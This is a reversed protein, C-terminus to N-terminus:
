GPIIVFPFFCFIIMSNFIWAKERVEPYFRSKRFSVSAGSNGERKKRLLTFSHFLDSSSEFTQSRTMDVYTGCDSNERRELDLFHVNENSFCFRPGDSSPSEDRNAPISEPEVDREERVVKIMDATPSKARSIEKCEKEENIWNKMSKWAKNIRSRVRVITKKDKPTINLKKSNEQRHRCYDDVDVDAYEDTTETSEKAQPIEPLKENELEVDEYELTSNIKKERPTPPRLHLVESAAYFLESENESKEGSVSAEQDGVVYDGAQPHVESSVSQSNLSTRPSSYVNETGSSESVTAYGRDVTGKSEDPTDYIFEKANKIPKDKPNGDLFSFRISSLDGLDSAESNANQNKADSIQKSDETSAPSKKSKEPPSIRIELSSKKLESMKKEEPKQKEEKKGDGVYYMVNEAVGSQIEKKCPRCDIIDEYETGDENGEELPKVVINQSSIIRYLTSVNKQIKKEPESSNEDKKKEIPKEEVPVVSKVITFLTSKNPKLELIERESKKNSNVTELNKSESKEAM